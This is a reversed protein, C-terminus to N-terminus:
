NAALIQRSARVRLVRRRDMELVEFLWGGFVVKDGVAPVRRLLALIAGGLTHYSGTAPLSPLDLITRVEDAPMFGDLM